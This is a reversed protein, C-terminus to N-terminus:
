IRVQFYTDMPFDEFDIKVRLASYYGTCNTYHLRTVRTINLDIMHQKIQEAINHGYRTGYWPVGLEPKPGKNMIISYPDGIGGCTCLMTNDDEEDMVCESRRIKYGSTVTVMAVLMALTSVMM